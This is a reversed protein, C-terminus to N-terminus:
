GNGNQELTLSRQIKAHRKLRQRSKLPQDENYQDTRNKSM